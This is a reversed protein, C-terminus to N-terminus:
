IVFWLNMSKNISLTHWLNYIVPLAALSLSSCSVVFTRPIEKQFQLLWSLNQRTQGVCPIWFIGSEEKCWSSLDYLAVCPCLCSIVVGGDWLDNSRASHPLNWGGDRYQWEQGLAGSSNCSWQLSDNLYAKPCSSVSFGSQTEWCSDAGCLVFISLWLRAEM